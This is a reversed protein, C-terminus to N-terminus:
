LHYQWKSCIRRVLVVTSHYHLTLSHHSLTTSDVAIYLPVEREGTSCMGPLNFVKSTTNCHISARVEQTPSYPSHPPQIRHPRQVCAERCLFLHFEMARPRPPECLHRAGREEEGEKGGERGREKERGRERERRRERGGEREGKRRSEKGGRERERRGERGRREKEERM